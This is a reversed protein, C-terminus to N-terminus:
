RDVAPQDQSQVVQLQLVAPDRGEAGGFGGIGGHAAVAVHEQDSAPVLQQLVAEIELLHRTAPSRLREDDRGVYAGPRVAVLQRNSRMRRLEDDSFGAALMRPRLLLGNIGDM